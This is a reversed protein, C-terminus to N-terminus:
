DAGVERGVGYECSRYHLEVSLHHIADEAKWECQYLPDTLLFGVKDMRQRVHVLYGLMPGISKAVAAAQERTLNMDHQFQSPAPFSLLPTTKALPRRGRSSDGHKRGPGRSPGPMREDRKM